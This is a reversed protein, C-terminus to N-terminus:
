HFIIGFFWILVIEGYRSGANAYTTSGDPAPIGSNEYVAGFITWCVFSVVMGSIATLFLPRHGVKDVMFVATVSIILNLITKGAM